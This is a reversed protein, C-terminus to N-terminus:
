GPKVGAEHAVCRDRGAAKAEYLAKDAEDVLAYAARPQAPTQSSLGISCTLAVPQAGHSLALARVAQLVRQAVTAAGHHDVNSLFVIFEEGGYRALIDGARQIVGSLAGAVAQLCADGFLHGHRDNIQKFHDLDILLIAVSYRHRCARSWEAEYHTTFYRRNRLHTLADTTSLEELERTRQELERSRRELMRSRVLANRYDARVSRAAFSIYIAYAVFMACLQANETRQVNTLLVSVGPLLMAMPYSYQLLPHIALVSVGGAAIGVTAIIMVTQGQSLWNFHLMAAMLLGWLLSNLLILGPVARRMRSLTWGTDHRLRRSVALRAASLTMLALLSGCFFVPASRLLGSSWTILAWLVPFIFVGPFARRDTDLVLQRELELEDIPSQETTESL